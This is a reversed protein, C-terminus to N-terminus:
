SFINYCSMHAKVIFFLVNTVFNVLMYVMSYFVVPFSIWPPGSRASKADDVMFGAQRHGDARSFVVGTGNWQTSIDKLSSVGESKFSKNGYDNM